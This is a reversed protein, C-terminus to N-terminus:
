SRSTNSNIARQAVHPADSASPAHRSSTLLFATPPGARVAAALRSRPAHGQSRRPAHEIRTITYAVPTVLLAPPVTAALAAALCDQGPM